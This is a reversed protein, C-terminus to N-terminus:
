GNGRKPPLHWHLKQRLTEYYNWNHPHWFIIAAPARQIRVLDDHELDNYIQMDFSISLADDSKIRISIEATDPVIIPRNSLAHPAIATLVLGPLNPHMIPGGLSLSYATSGTPTAVILGDGREEVMFHGDVEVHLDVMGAGASRLLVIDNLAQASHVCQQDRWVSGAILTRHESAYHGSLIAELAQQWQSLGIDTIFGVRGSNIGVLPIKSGALQRAVGLMTGDGGVVIVLQCISPVDVLNVQAYPCNHLYQHAEKDILVTYNNDRLWQAISLLADIMEGEMGRVSYRGSLAITHIPAITPM